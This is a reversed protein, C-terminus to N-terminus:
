SCLDLEIRRKSLTFFKKKSWHFISLGAEKTYLRPLVILFLIVFNLSISNKMSAFSSTVYPVLM